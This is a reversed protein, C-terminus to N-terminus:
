EGSLCLERSELFSVSFPRGTHNVMATVANQFVSVIFVNNAIYNPQFPSKRFFSPPADTDSHLSNSASSGVLTALLSGASAGKGSDSWNISFGHHTPTTPYKVELQKAMNVACTLTVIHIIAQSITSLVESVHFPTTSPRVGAVLRPRPTSSAVFSSQDALVQSWMEIQWLWKGYRLGNKYLTALNYCSLM